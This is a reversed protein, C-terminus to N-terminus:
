DNAARGGDAPDSSEFFDYRSRKMGLKEYVSRAAANGADVYLRLGCVGGTERAADEVFRHLRTYVGRKRSAPEVYVSQIWWFFANRWDSWEPTVLLSGVRREGGEAIVYFGKSPDDLVSRVGATLLGASLLKGETEAAMALNFRVLVDLDSLVAKRATIGSGEIV